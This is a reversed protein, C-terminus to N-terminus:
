ILDVVKKKFRYMLSCGFIMLVLVVSWFYITLAPHNLFTKGYFVSDRYGNVIYYVPNLKMIFNLIKYGPISKRFHCEWIVPSFYMLMRMLSTVLKKVDRWIMTLVSLILAVAESFMFACFAYYLLGIWYLNPTYGFLLLVVITIVMMCFHNFMEKACITAPLTSVPFKMKTIVNTKSFIANCGNQICPQLFWWSAYGVILWPMYPIDGVPKKNWAIGFVLWYTLVQIAPSAFNWFLGFKSDRMDALLEYKAICYIRYVNQFNEQLVFKMSKFM